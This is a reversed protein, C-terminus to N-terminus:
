NAPAFLAAAERRLATLQEWIPSAAEVTPQLSRKAPTTGALLQHAQELLRLAVDHPCANAAHVNSAAADLRLAAESDDDANVCATLMQRIADDRLLDAIDVDTLLDVDFDCVANPSRGPLSDVQLPRITPVGNDGHQFTQAADYRGAEGIVWPSPPSFPTETGSAAITVAGLFSRAMDIVAAGAAMGVTDTAIALLLPPWVCNAQEEAYLELAFQGDDEAALFDETWWVESTFNFGALGHARALASVASEMDRSLHGIVARPGLRIPGPASSFIGGLPLVTVAGHTYVAFRSLLAEFTRSTEHPYALVRGVDKVVERRLDFPALTHLLEAGIADCVEQLLELGAAPVHVEVHHNVAIHLGGDATESIVGTFRFFDSDGSDVYAAGLLDEWASAGGRVSM